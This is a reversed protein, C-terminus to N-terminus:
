GGAGLLILRCCHRAASPLPAPYVVRARRGSVQTFITKASAMDRHDALVVGVGNAAYLNSRDNVLVKKFFSLARRLYKAEKEPEDFRASMYYINGLSLLAYADAEDLRDIVTEFVKQAPGYERRMM